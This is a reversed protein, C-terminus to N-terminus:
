EYNIMGKKKVKEVKNDRTEVIDYYDKKVIERQEKNLKKYKKSFDEFYKKEKIPDVDISLMYYYLDMLCDLVDVDDIYDGAYENNGLVSMASTLLFDKVSKKM